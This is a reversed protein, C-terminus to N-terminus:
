CGSVLRWEHPLWLCQQRGCLHGWSIKLLCTCREAMGLDVFPLWLPLLEAALRPM